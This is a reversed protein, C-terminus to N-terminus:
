HGIKMSELFLLCIMFYREKDEPFGAPGRALLPDAKAVNKCLVFANLLNILRIDPNQEALEEVEELIHDGNTGNSAVTQILSFSTATLSM